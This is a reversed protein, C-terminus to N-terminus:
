QKAISARVSDVLEQAKIGKKSMEKVWRTVVKKGLKELKATEKANLSLVQGGSDKQLKKGPAELDMPVQGAIKLMELDISDNVAKQLDKPLRKFTDKNMVLMLVSSGFGGGKTTGISYKTLQHLKYPAFIDFVVLTGDIAKKSLAQPLAPIPMAVPEARLEEIFWAGTRSPTRLKLGKLQSIKTIKKSVTHLYNTGTTTLILPKIDKFDEQILEMNDRIALTTEMPTTHVTPLEFVETRPFVGPSYAPLTFVIDASGSRAQKYLENPKGGMSMSPFMKIKIRGNSLKEVKQAWPVLIKAYPPAKPSLFTHMTLVIPEKQANLISTVLVMSILVYISKQLLNKM